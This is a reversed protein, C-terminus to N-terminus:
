RPIYKRIDDVTPISHSTETYLRLRNVFYEISELIDALADYSTIVGNAAQDAQLWFSISVFELVACVELLVGLTAHIANLHPLLTQLFPWLRLVPWSCRGVYWASTAPSPPSPLFRPYFRYLPSLRSSFEIMNDSIMSPRHKAKCYPLLTMSPTAVSYDSLLRIEGTPWHSAPGTRM